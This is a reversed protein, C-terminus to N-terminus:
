KYRLGAGNALAARWPNRAQTREAHHAAAVLLLSAWVGLSFYATMWVADTRWHPWHHSVVWRSSVDVLGQALGLAGRGHLEDDIWRSWYMPVDFGFLYAAYGLGGAAVVVLLARQAPAVLRWAGAVGLVVLVAVGGWLSEEIVHGFNSTSLVAYWSFCEAVVIVPLVASSATRLARGTAAAGAHGSGHRSLDRLLLAWQAAFCLEAITAVSRGVLVSSWFSDVLVMRPVDVVPLWCRWGCGLVYAASLALQWRRSRWVAAPWDTHRRWCWLALVVWAFANLVAVARLLTWWTLTEVDVL